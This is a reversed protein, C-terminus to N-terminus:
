PAPSLSLLDGCPGPADARRDLCVLLWDAGDLRGATLSLAAGPAVEVTAARCAGPRGAIVCAQEIAPGMAIGLEAFPAAQAALAADLTARAAEASAAADAPVLLLSEGPALLALGGAEARLAEPMPLDVGVRSSWATLDTPGPAAASWPTLLALLLTM